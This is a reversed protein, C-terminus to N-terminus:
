RYPETFGTDSLRVGSTDFAAVSSSGQSGVWWALWYGNAVVADRVSGDSLTVKVAAM